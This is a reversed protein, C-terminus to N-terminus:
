ERRNLRDRVSGGLPSSNGNDSPKGFMGGLMDALRLMAAGKGRKGATLLALLPNAQAQLQDTIGNAVHADASAPQKLSNLLSRAAASGIVAGMGDLMMALKSPQDKNEGQLGIWSQLAEDARKEIEAQKANIFRRLLLVAGLITIIQCVGLLVVAFIM